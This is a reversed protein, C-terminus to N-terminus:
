KLIESHPAQALYQQLCNYLVTDSYGDDGNSRGLQKLVAEYYPKNPGKLDFGQRDLAEIAEMIEPKKSRPGRKNSSPNTLAIQPAILENVQNMSQPDLTCAAQEQTGVPRGGAVHLRPPQRVEVGEFRDGYKTVINKEWDIKPQLFYHSPISVQGNSRTPQTQVGRADLKGQYLQEIHHQKMSREVPETRGLYSFQDSLAKWARQMEQPDNCSLQMEGPAPLDKLQWYEKRLRSPAFDWWADSLPRFRDSGKGM